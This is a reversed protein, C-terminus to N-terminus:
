EVVRVHEKIWDIIDLVQWIGLLALIILVIFFANIMCDCNNEKNIM